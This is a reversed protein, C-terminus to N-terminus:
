PNVPSGTGAAKDNSLPVPAPMAAHMDQVYERVSPEVEANVGWAKFTDRKWDFGAGVNNQYTVKVVQGDTFNVVYVPPHPADWPAQTVIREGAQFMEEPSCGECREPSALPAAGAASLAAALVLSIM